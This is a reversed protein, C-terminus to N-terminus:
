EKSVFITGTFERRSDRLLVMGNGILISDMLLEDNDKALVVYQNYHVPVRKVCM